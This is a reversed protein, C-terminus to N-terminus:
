GNSLEKILRQLYDDWKKNRYDILWRVKNLLNNLYAMEEFNLQASGVAKYSGEEDAIGFTVTARASGQTNDVVSMVMVVIKM